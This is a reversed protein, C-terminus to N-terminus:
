FGPVESFGLGELLKSCRTKFKGEIAEDLEAVTFTLEKSYDKALSVISEEVKLKAQLEQEKELIDLFKKANEVSM